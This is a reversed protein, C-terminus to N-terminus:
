LFCVPCLLTSHIFCTAHVPLAPCGGILSCDPLVPLHLMADTNTFRSTILTVRVLTNYKELM